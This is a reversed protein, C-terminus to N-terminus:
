LDVALNPLLGPQGDIERRLFFGFIRGRLVAFGPVIGLFFKEGLRGLRDPASSSACASFASSARRRWRRDQIFIAYTQAAGGLCGCQCLLLFAIANKQKKTAQM